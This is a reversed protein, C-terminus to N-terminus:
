IKKKSRKLLSQWLYQRVEKIMEPDKLRLLVPEMFGEALMEIAKERRIGRSQLYFISQEDAQGITAAHSAKVEDAEIELSPVSEAQAHHGVILVRNELLAVTRNAGKAIRILGSFSLRSDDFLVGRVNTYASTNLGHHETVIELRYEARERGLILGLIELSSGDGVLSVTLRRIKKDSKPLLLVTVRENRTLKIVTEKRDGYDIIYRVPAFTDQKLDLGIKEGM